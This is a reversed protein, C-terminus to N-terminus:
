FNADPGDSSDEFAAQELIYGFIGILRKLMFQCFVTVAFDATVTKKTTYPSPTCIVTLGVIKRHTFGFCFLSLGGVVVLFIASLLISLYVNWGKKTLIVAVLDAWGFLSIDFIVSAVQQLSDVFHLGLSLLTILGLLSPLRAMTRDDIQNIINETIRQTIKM